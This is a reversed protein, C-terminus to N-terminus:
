RRRMDEIMEPQDFIAEGMVAQHRHFFAFEIPPGALAIELPEQERDQQEAEQQQREQQEAQLEASPHHPGRRRNLLVVVVEHGGVGRAQPPRAGPRRHAHAGGGDADVALAQPLQGGAARGQADEGHAVGVDEAM